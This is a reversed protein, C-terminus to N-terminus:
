SHYHHNFAHMYDIYASYDSGFHGYYENFYHTRTILVRFDLTLSYLKLLLYMPLRTKTWKSGAKNRRLRWDPM